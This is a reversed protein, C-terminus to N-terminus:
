GTTGVVFRPQSREIAELVGGSIEAHTLWRVGRESRHAGLVVQRYSVVDAHARLKARAADAAAIASGTASGVVHVFAFRRGPSALREALRIALDDDHIWALVLDPPETAAVHREIELVFREADGWHLPLVHHECGVDRVAADLMTLSRRTRAVSTMRRSREALALSAALLMGTGGVIVTHVYAHNAPM